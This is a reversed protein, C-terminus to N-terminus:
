VHCICKKAYLLYFLCSMYVKKCIAFLGFMAYVSKKAFLEFCKLYIKIKHEFSQRIVNFTEDYQEMDVSSSSVVLFNKPNQRQLPM